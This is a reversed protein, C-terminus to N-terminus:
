TSVIKIFQGNTDMDDLNSLMSWIGINLIYTSSVFETFEYSTILPRYAPIADLIDQIDQRYEPMKRYCLKLFYNVSPMNDTYVRKIRYIPFDNLKVGQSAHLGITYLKFLDSCNLRYVTNTLPDTVSTLFNVLGRKLLFALYDTITELLKFRVSDTEDVLITELDKTLASSLRSNKNRKDINISNYQHELANSPAVKAEKNALYEMPYDVDNHSLKKSNLLEQNFTYETYLDSDLTNRQHYVYNVVSVNHENFLENILTRFVHNRGSHNAFYLLNRYLYLQQRRTLFVQHKDLNFHSALYLRIHFSHARMTKANALRISLLSTYIFNYLIHYQSALFLNDSNQYYPILWIHKYNNIRDQLESIIDHENEEILSTNYSVITFDEADIIEQRTKYVPKTIISKILLHQHPYRKILEDYYLDFKLLEQKTKRHVQLSQPTLNITSGNDISVVTIAPDTDHLTSSIHHYYSWDRKDQPANYGKVYKILYDNYLKAENHNKLIISKTLRITDQIYSEVYFSNGQLVKTLIPEQM